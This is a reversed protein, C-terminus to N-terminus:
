LKQQKQISLNLITAFPFDVAKSRKLCLNTVCHHSHSITKSNPMNKQGERLIAAKGMRKFPHGDAQKSKKWEGEQSVAWIWNDVPESGGNNVPDKLQEM